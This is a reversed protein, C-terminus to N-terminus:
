FDAAALGIIWKSKSMDYLHDNLDEMLRGKCWFDLLERRDGAWGLPGPFPAMFRNHHSPPVVYVACFWYNIVRVFKSSNLINSQKM